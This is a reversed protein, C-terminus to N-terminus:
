LSVAQELMRQLMNYGSTAHISSDLLHVKMASAAVFM